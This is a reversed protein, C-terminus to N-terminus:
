VMASRVQKATVNRPLFGFLPHDAMDNLISIRPWKLCTSHITVGLHQLQWKGWPAASPAAFEISYHNDPGAYDALAVMKEKELRQLDVSNHASM